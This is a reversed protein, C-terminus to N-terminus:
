KAPTYIIQRTLTTSRRLINVAKFEINNIGPNLIIKENFEGNEGFSIEQDKIFLTKGRVVRGSIVLDSQNTTFDREPSYLIIKAPLIFFSAEYIFYVLILSLFLWKLLVSFINKFLGIFKSQYILFRNKPPLDYKGAFLNRGNSKQYLQLVKEEDLKLFYAYKEIIGKLYVPPPLSKYEDNELAKLIFSLIKTEESVKELSLGKERRVQKLFAGCSLTEEKDGQIPYKNKM